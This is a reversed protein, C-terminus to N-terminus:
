GMIERSSIEEDYEIKTIEGDLYMEELETETYQSLNVTSLAEELEADDEKATKLVVTGDESQSKISGVQAEAAKGEKSFSVTDGQSSVVDYSTEPNATEEKVKKQQEVAEMQSSQMAGAQQKMDTVALEM